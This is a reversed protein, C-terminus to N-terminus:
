YAWLSLISTIIAAVEVWYINHKLKYKDFKPIMQVATFVVFAGVLLYTVWSSCHVLLAVMGSGIGGYSGLMHAKGETDMKGNKEKNWYVQSAGILCIFGGALLWLILVGDGSVDFGVIMLPVGVAWLSLAFWLKEWANTHHKATASISVTMGAKRKMYVLYPVILFPILLLEKM